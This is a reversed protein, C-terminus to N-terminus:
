LALMKWVLLVIVNVLSVTVMVVFEDYTSPMPLQSLLPELYANLSM